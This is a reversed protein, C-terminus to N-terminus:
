EDWVTLEFQLADTAGLTPTATCVYYGYLVGSTVPASVNVNDVLAIGLSNVSTFSSVSIRAVAKRLDAIVPAFAANDAITTPDANFLWLVGAPAGTGAETVRAQRITVRTVDTGFSFTLKGGIVDGAAYAGATVTPQVVASITRNGVGGVEQTTSLTVGNATQQAFWNVIPVLGTPIAM